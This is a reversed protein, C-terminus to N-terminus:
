FAKKIEYCEENLSLDVSSPQIQLNISKIGNIKKNKCLSIYDEYVLAGSM